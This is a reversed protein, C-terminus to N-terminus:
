LFGLYELDEIMSAAGDVDDGSLEYILDLEASRAGAPGGSAALCAADAYDTGAFAYGCGKTTFDRAVTEFTTRNTEAIEHFVDTDMPERCVPCLLDM